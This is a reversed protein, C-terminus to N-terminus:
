RGHRRAQERVEVRQRTPALRGPAPVSAALTPLGGAPATVYVVPRPPLDGPPPAAAQAPGPGVAFAVFAAARVAWAIGAPRHPRGPKLTSM